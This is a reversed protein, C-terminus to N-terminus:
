WYVQNAIPSSYNWNCSCMMTQQQHWDSQLMWLIFLHLYIVCMIILMGARKKSIVCMIVLCQPHEWTVSSPLCNTVKSFFFFFLFFFVLLSIDLWCHTYDKTHTSNVIRHASVGPDMESAPAPCTRIQLCRPNATLMPTQSATITRSPTQQTQCLRVKRKVTQTHSYGTLLESWTTTRYDSLFYFVGWSVM